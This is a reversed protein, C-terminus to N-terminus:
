GLIQVQLVVRFVEWGIIIITDTSEKRWNTQFYQWFYWPSGTNIKRSFSMWSSSWLFSFSLEVHLPLMRCVFASKIIKNLMSTFKIKPPFLLKKNNNNIM